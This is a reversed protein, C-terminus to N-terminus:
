DRYEVGLVRASIEETMEKLTSKCFEKITGISLADSVGVSQQSDFPSNGATYLETNSNIDVISYGQENYYGILRQM